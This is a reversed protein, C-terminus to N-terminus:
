YMTSITSLLEENFYLNYCLFVVVTNPIFESLPPLFRKKSEKWDRECSARSFCSIIITDTFISMASLCFYTM